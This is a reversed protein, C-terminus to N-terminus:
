EKERGITKSLDFLRRQQAATLSGYGSRRIKDLLSDLSDRCETEQSPRVAPRPTIRWYLGLAIGSVLGCLHTIHTALPSDANCLALLLVIAVSINLLRTSGFMPLEIRMNPHMATVMAMVAMVSASAGAVAMSDVSFQQVMIAGIGGAIGGIIYAYILRRGYSSGCLAAFCWLSIMNMALHLFDYQTFMYSALSWPRAFLGSVGGRVILQNLCATAIESRHFLGGVLAVIHLGIYVAVNIAILWLLASGLRLRLSAYLNSIAM